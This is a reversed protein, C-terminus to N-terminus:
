SLPPSSRASVACRGMGRASLLQYGLTLGHFPTTIRSNYYLSHVHILFVSCVHPRGHHYLM